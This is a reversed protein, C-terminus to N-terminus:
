PHYWLEEHYKFGPTPNLTLFFAAANWIREIFLKNFIESGDTHVTCIGVGKNVAAGFKLTKISPISCVDEPVNAKTFM